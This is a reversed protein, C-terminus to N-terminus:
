KMKWTGKWNNGTKGDKWDYAEEYTGGGEVGVWKGTGGLFGWRGGQDRDMSWWYYAVDGDGDVSDCSGAASVQEGADDTVATGSCEMSALHLPNDANDATMFGSFTMRNATTGDGLEFSKHIKPVFMNKGSATVEAGAATLAILGLCVLMVGISLIRKSM